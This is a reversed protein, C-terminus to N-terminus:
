IVANIGCSDKLLNIMVKNYSIHKLIGWEIGKFKQPKSWVVFILKHLHENTQFVIIFKVVGM